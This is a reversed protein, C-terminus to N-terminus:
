LAARRGAAQQEAYSSEPIAESSHALLSCDSDAFIAGLDLFRQQVGYHAAM